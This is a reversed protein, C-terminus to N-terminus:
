DTLFAAIMHKIAELEAKIPDIDQDKLVQAHKAAEYVNEQFIDWGGFVIDDLKAIPM